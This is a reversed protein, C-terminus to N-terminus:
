IRAKNQRSHHPRKNIKKQQQYIKANRPHHTKQKNDFTKTFQITSATKEINSIVMSKYNTLPYLM